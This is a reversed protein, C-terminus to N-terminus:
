LGGIIRCLVATDTIAVAACGHGIHDIDLEFVVIGDDFGLLFEVIHAKQVLLIGAANPALVIVVGQRDGFSYCRSHGRIPLVAGAASNDAYFIFQLFCCVGHYDNGAFSHRGRRHDVANQRIRLTDMLVAGNGQRQIQCLQRLTHSIRILPDHIVLACLIFLPSQTVVARKSQSIFFCLTVVKRYANRGIQQRVLFSNGFPRDIAPEGNRRGGMAPRAIPCNVTLGCSIRITQLMLGAGHRVASLGDPLADGGRVASGAVNRFGYLDAGASRLRLQQIRPVFQGLQQCLAFLLCNIATGVCSDPQLYLLQGRSRRCLCCGDLSLGLRQQAIMCSYQREINRQVCLYIILYLSFDSFSVAGDSHNQCHRFFHTLRRRAHGTLPIQNPYM